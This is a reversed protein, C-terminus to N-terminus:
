KPQKINWNYEPLVLKPVNQNQENKKEVSINEIKKIEPQKQFNNINQLKREPEIKINNNQQNNKEIIKGNIVPYYFKKDENINKKKFQFKKPKEQPYLDKNVKKDIIEAVYVSINNSYKKIKTLQSYSPAFQAYGLDYNKASIDKSYMDQWIVNYSKKDVLTMLTTLKYTPNVPDIGAIGFKNWWTDKLFSSQIDLGSTILLIYDCPINSTVRKLNVYDVNFNYRYDNFFTMYYLPINRQTIKAMNEGLLPAYIHNTKNLENIIDSAFIDSSAGSVLYTTGNRHGTDSLVVVVPKNKSDVEKANVLTGMVFVLFVAIFTFIKKIM